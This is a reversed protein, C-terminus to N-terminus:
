PAEVVILNAVGDVGLVEYFVSVLTGRQVGELGRREDECTFVRTDPAARLAVRTTRGRFTRTVILRGEGADVWEVRGRIERQTLGNPTTAAPLLLLGALVLAITSAPGRSRGQSV